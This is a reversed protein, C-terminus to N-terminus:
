YWNDRIVRDSTSRIQAVERPIGHQRWLNELAEYREEKLFLPRGRRLSTDEEGNEDLYLSASYASKKNHILLVTCKKVLFFVGTGSGVRRAHLTCEGPERHHKTDRHYQRRVSGTNMITGTILCIATESHSNIGEDDVQQNKISKKVENVIGYLEVFSRPLRILGSGQGGATHSIGLHSLDSMFGSASANDFWKGRPGPGPKLKGFLSPQYPIIVASSVNAYMTDISSSVHSHDIDWSFASATSSEDDDSDDQQVPLTSQIIDFNREDFLNEEDLQVMEEDDSDDHTAFFTAPPDHLEDSDSSNDDIEEEEEEHDSSVDENLACEMMEDNRHLVVDSLQLPQQVRNSTEGATRNLKIDIKENKSSVWQQLSEDFAVYRGSSGHYTEFTCAASLWRNIVDLWPSGKMIESPCPAGMKELFFFGDEIYMTDENEILDLIEPNMNDRFERIKLHQRLISTAARLILVLTRAFPLIAYSVASLLHEESLDDIDSSPNTISRCHKILSRLAENEQVKDFQTEQLIEGASKFDRNLSNPTTISQVLRGVLLVRATACLSQLSTSPCSLLSSFLAGALTNLDWALLPVYLFATALAPRFPIMADVNVVDHPSLTGWPKSLIDAFSPVQRVSFPFPPDKLIDKNSDDSADTSVSSPVFGKVAWIAAATARAEQRASLTEDSSVHCPLASLLATLVSWQSSFCNKLSADTWCYGELIRSLLFGTIPTDDLHDGGNEAGIVKEYLAKHLLSYLSSAASLTRRLELLMPHSDLSTSNFDVWPDSTPPDFGRKRLGRASAESSAASHGIAAWAIHQQRLLRLINGIPVKGSPLYYTDRQEEEYDWNNMITHWNKKSQLRSNRSHWSLVQMAQFLYIGYQKVAKEKGEDIIKMPSRHLASRISDMDDASNMVDTTDDSPIQTEKETCYEDNEIPVVVNCLQKCLPCLFEGDEIDAAYRGDYAADSQLAKQHISIVHTEVCGLHAAHGCQRIIPRTCGWRTNKYCMNLLPNLIVYGHSTQINAWGELVSGNEPPQHRVFVRRGLLGYQPLFMPEPVTVISGFPICAVSPSDMAESERIMCGKLGVVRFAQVYSQGM